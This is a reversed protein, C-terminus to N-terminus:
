SSDSEDDSSSIDGFLPVVLGSMAMELEDSQVVSSDAAIINPASSCGCVDRREGRVCSISHPQSSSEPANKSRGKRNQPRGQVGKPAEQGM